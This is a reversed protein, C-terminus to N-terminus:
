VCLVEIGENQLVASTEPSINMDTIVTKPQGDINMPITGASLFKTSETLIIMNEASQAMDRVAQTRLPDKNTFGTTESWGDTGIFFCRVHYAKAAEAIMPGVLCQSDKQYIGGPLIVTINAADKIYDAIFASNTIITVDKGSDAIVRALLACCSGSEIMITDGNEVTEAAMRAIKMKEDYHFALRGAINDTQNIRAFGHERQIIGKNELEDLDKRITVQSVRLLASLTTVDAKKNEAIFNVLAALRQEKKVTM